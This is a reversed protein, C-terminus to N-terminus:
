ISLEVTNTVENLVHSSTDKSQRKQQMEDLMKSLEYQALGFGKHIRSSFMINYKSVYTYVYM